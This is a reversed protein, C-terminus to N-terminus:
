DDLTAPLPLDSSEVVKFFRYGTGAKDEPLIVVPVGDPTGTVDAEDTWTALDSSSQLRYATDPKGPLIVVACRGPFHRGPVGPRANLIVAVGRHRRGIEYAPPIPSAVPSPVVKAIVTEAPELAKDPIPDIVIRTTHRGAPIEISSAVEAYDVGNRATGGLDIWVRLPTNTDGTRRLRFVATNPPKAGEVAIPDVTELTVVPVPTVEPGVVVKVPGSEGQVGTNDTAVAVLTYTGAPVNEWTWSFSQVQGPKPAVIWAFNVEGIKKGDALLLIHPVYGDADATQGTIVIQAPAKFVAGDAPSDIAIKPPFGDNDHIVAKAAGPTGVAYCSRPTPWIAPCAPELLELAVTEDGEVLTDDLATLRIGVSESGKPIVVSGPLKEYDVGNEATGGLQYFVTLDIDTPGTRSVVFLGTNPLSDILPSQEAAEPDKAVVTVVPTPPFLEVLITSAASTGETGQDDRVRATIVHNGPTAGKWLLDYTQVEGPKPAVLFNLEVQGILDKGDYFECHSTYGDSDVARAVLPIAEGQPFIMGDGPQALEVKPPANKTDDDRIVARASASLGVTYCGYPPPYIAICAPPDVTVVVTEPGEALTDDIPVILIDASRSGTPIVVQGSLKQYDDGNSATGGLTYYVTLDRDLTGTRSVAFRAVDGLPSGLVSSESAVADVAEITVL